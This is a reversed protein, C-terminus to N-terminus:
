RTVTLDVQARPVHNAHAVSISFRMPDETVVGPMELALRGGPAFYKKGDNFVSERWLEAQLGPGIFLDTDGIRRYVMLYLANLPAEDAQVSYGLGLYWNPNWIESGDDEYEGSFRGYDVPVQLEAFAALNSEEIEGDNLLFASYSWGVGYDFTQASASGMTFFIAALAALLYRV